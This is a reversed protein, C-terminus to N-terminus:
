SQGVFHRLINFRDFCRVRRDFFRARQKRFVVLFFTCTRLCSGVVLLLSPSVEVVRHFFLKKGTQSSKPNTGMIFRIKIRANAASPLTQKLAAFNKEFSVKKPITSCLLQLRRFYLFIM